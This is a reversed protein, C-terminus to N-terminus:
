VHARGIKKVIDSSDNMAYDYCNANTNDLLYVITELNEYVCSEKLAKNWWTAGNDLCKVLLEIDNEKASLVLRENSEKRQTNEKTQKIPIYIECKESSPGLLPGVPKLDFKHVYEIIAYDNDINEIDINKIDMNKIDMNKIDEFLKSM